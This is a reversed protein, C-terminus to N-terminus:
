LLINLLIFFIALNILLYLSLPNSKTFPLKRYILHIIFGVGFWGLYNRLPIIGDQWTWFDLKIAVPEILFDLIVLLIAGVISAVFDNKILSYIVGGSLYVLLLWNVGIMLPTDFLKLGLVNSYAYNGFPFGTHVGMVESGFGLGYALIVFWLFNSNWSTHFVFLLGTCLLLHFPTLLQFYPRLALSNMGVVGVLHFITIVLKFLFIRDKKLRFWISTSQNTNM